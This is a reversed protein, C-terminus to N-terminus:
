FSVLSSRNYVLLMNLAIMLCQSSIEFHYNNLPKSYNFLILSKKLVSGRQDLDTTGFM